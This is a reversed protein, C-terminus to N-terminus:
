IVKLWFNDEIEFRDKYTNTGQNEHIRYQVLHKDIFISPYKSFLRLWMDYDQVTKLKEDFLGCENFCEKNILTTCGNVAGMIVPMIGCTLEEKDYFATHDTRSFIIGDGNILDFNSFVITNKNPCKVLEKIELEIKSPKYLDDHSLWSIYEGKSEKIGLNLATSVGGNEKFIYKIKNKFSECIKKTKDTSGDDIVIIEINKYTQELASKISDNIYDEGNYVPIIISVLPNFKEGM